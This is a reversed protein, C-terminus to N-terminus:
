GDGRNGSLLILASVVALTLVGLLIGSAALVLVRM